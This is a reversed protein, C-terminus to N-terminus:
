ILANLLKLLPLNKAENLCGATVSPMYLVQELPRNCRQSVEKATEVDNGGMYIYTDCNALINKDAGPKSSNQLQAESQLILSVSIARSRITSIITDLSDIATTAGYDDLFFRVPIPLRQNKRSDAYKILSYMAQTFFLNILGDMSRDSDSQIVFVASKEQAIKEFDIDNSSMMIELEQSTYNSFKAALTVCITDYTKGPASDVVKFQEYAWSNPNKCYLAELREKLKSAKADNQRVGDVDVRRSFREGERLLQMLSM